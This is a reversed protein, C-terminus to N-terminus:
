NATHESFHLVRQSREEGDVYRLVLRELEALDLTCQMGFSLTHPSNLVLPAEQHALERLGTIVLGSGDETITRTIGIITLDTLWNEPLEAIAILHTAMVQLQTILATSPKENSELTVIDKGGGKAEVDYRVLVELREKNCKFKLLRRM